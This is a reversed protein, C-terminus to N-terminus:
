IEEDGWNGAASSVPVKSVGNPVNTVDLATRQRKTYTLTCEGTNMNQVFPIVLKASKLKGLSPYGQKDRVVKLYLSQGVRNSDILACYAKCFDTISSDPLKVLQENTIGINRAIHGLHGNFIKMDQAYLEELTLETPYPKAEKKMPVFVRDRLTSGKHSYVFDVASWNDTANYTCSDIACDPVGSKVPFEGGGESLSNEENKFGIM